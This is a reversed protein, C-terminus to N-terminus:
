KGKESFKIPKVKIEVSKMYDKRGFENPDFFYRKGLTLQNALDDFKKKLEHIQDETEIRIQDWRKVDIKLVDLSTKLDNYKKVFGDINEYFKENKCFKNNAQCEQEFRDVENLLKMYHQNILTKFEDRDIAIENRIESFYDHLKIERNSDFRKFKDIKDKFEFLASKCKYFEDGLEVNLNKMARELKPVEM